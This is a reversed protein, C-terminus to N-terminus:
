TEPNLLTEVHLSIYKSVREYNPDDESMGLFVDIEAETQKRRPSDGYADLFNYGYAPQGVSTPRTLYREVRPQAPTEGTM